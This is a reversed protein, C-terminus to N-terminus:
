RYDSRGESEQWIRSALMGLVFGGATWVAKGTTFSLIPTVPNCIGPDQYVENPILEFPDEASLLLSATNVGSGQGCTIRADVPIPRTMAVRVDFIASGAPYIRGLGTFAFPGDSGQFPYVKVTDEVIPAPVTDRLRLTDVRLGAHVRVVPRERLEREVSDRKLEVQVVRLQYASVSDGLSELALLRATDAAAAISDARFSEDRYRDTIIKAWAVSAVTALLLALILLKKM